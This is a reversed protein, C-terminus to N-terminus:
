KVGPQSTQRLSGYAYAAVGAQGAPKGAFFVPHFMQAPKPLPLSTRGACHTNSYHIKTIIQFDLMM